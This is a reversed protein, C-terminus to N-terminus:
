LLKKYSLLVFRFVMNITIRKPAIINFNKMRKDSKFDLVYFECIRIFFFFRYNNKTTDIFVM